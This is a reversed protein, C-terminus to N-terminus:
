CVRRLDPWYHHSQWGVFGGWILGTTTPSSVFGGWTLGTTTPSGDLLSEESWAPLPPVALLGEEPYALISISTHNQTLSFPPISVAIHKTNLLFASYQCPYAKHWTSLCVASQRDAKHEPSHYFASLPTSQTSSFPVISLRTHKTNPLFASHQSDHAKHEPAFAPLPLSSSASQITNQTWSFTLIDSVTLM